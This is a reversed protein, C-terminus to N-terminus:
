RNRLPSGPPSPTIRTAHAGTIEGLYIEQAVQDPNEVEVEGQLVNNRGVFVSNGRIVIRQARFTNGYYVGGSLTITGQINFTNGLYHDEHTFNVFPEDGHGAPQRSDATFANGEFVNGLFYQADGEIQFDGDFVMVRTVPASGGAAGRGTRGSSEVTAGGGLSEISCTSGRRSPGASPGSRRGGQQMMRAVTTNGITRQLSLAAAPSMGAVPGAAAMRPTIAAPAPDTRRPVIRHHEQESQHQRDPHM